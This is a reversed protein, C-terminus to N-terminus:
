LCKEIFFRYYNFELDVQNALQLHNNRRLNQYTPKFYDSIKMYSDNPILEFDFYPLITFIDFVYRACVSRFENRNFKEIDNLDDNEEIKQYWKISRKEQLQQNPEGVNSQGPEEVNQEEIAEDIDSSFSEYEESLESPVQYDDDNNLSDEDSSYEDSNYLNNKRKRKRKKKKKNKNKSKNM